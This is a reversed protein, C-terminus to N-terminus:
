AEEGTGNLNKLRDALASERGEAYNTITSETFDESWENPGPSSYGLNQAMAKVIDEQTREGNTGKRIFMRATTSRSGGVSKAAQDLSRIEEPTMYVVIRRDHNENMTMM